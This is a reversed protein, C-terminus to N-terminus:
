IYLVRVTQVLAEYSMEGAQSLVQLMDHNASGIFDIIGKVAPKSVFVLLPQTSAELSLEAASNPPNVWLDLVVFKEPINEKQIVKECKFFLCVVTWMKESDVSVLDTKVGPTTCNEFVFLSGISAAVNVAKTAPYIDVKARLQSM